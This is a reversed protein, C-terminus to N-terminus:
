MKSYAKECDKKCQIAHDLHGRLEPLKSTAWSKIDADQCDASANEFLRIAGEHGEVMMDAYAKDFEGGATKKNLKTYAENIDNTATTPVTIMKTKALATLEDISKQHGEQMMKGLAVVHSSAGKQQALKGLIIEELNIEAAKVLFEADKEQARNDFVAENSKMAQAEPDPTKNKCSSIAFLVVMLLGAQILFPYSKKM